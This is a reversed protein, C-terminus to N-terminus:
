SNFNIREKEVVQPRKLTQTYIAGIYEGIVGLFVLQVSSLFFLGIVVPAVGVPFDDWYVLKYVLYLVAVLLSIIALIVGVFVALRLPVKSHNIVGLMGVDYLLYFNSKTIGRARRPQFYKVKAVEYGLESILGRLFPYPDNIRRLQSVVVADYLGFGTSNKHIKVESLREIFGYYIKRLSFMLKSEGSDTKEGLVIRFGSEWHRLFDPILEPPDQFDCSMLIAADGRCQLLGYFPSRIWGFNRTNIIVKVRSDAAAMKRLLEQTKDTSANDIFVHEYEYQSLSSFIHAVEDRMKEVNAEENFCPTLVSVKKM